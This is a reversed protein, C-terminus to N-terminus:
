HRRWAHPLRPPPRPGGLPPPPPPSPGSSFLLLLLAFRPPPPLDAVHPLALHPPTRNPDPTSQAVAAMPPPPAYFPRFLVLVTLREGCNGVWGLTPGPSSGLFSGDSHMEGLFFNPKVGSVWVGGWPLDLNRVGLGLWAFGRGQSPFLLRPHVGTFPGRTNISAGHVHRSFDTGLFPPLRPVSPQDEIQVFM